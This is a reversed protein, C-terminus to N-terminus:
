EIDTLDNEYSFEQNLFLLVELQQPLATKKIEEIEGLMKSVFFGNSGESWDNAYFAINEDHEYFPFISLVETDTQIDIWGTDPLVPQLDSTKYPLGPDGTYGKRAFVNHFTEPRKSCFSLDLNEEYECDNTRNHIVEPLNLTSEQIIEKQCSFITIILLIAILFSKWNKM